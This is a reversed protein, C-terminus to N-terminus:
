VRVRLLPPMRALVLAVILPPASALRPLTNVVPVLVSSILLWTLVPKLLAPAPVSKSLLTEPAKEPYLPLM